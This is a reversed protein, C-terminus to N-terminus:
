PRELVAPAVAVTQNVPVLIAQIPMFPLVGPM